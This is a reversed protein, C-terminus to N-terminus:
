FWTWCCSCNPWESGISGLELLLLVLVVYYCHLKKSATGYRHFYYRFTHRACVYVGWKSSLHRFPLSLREGERACVRYTFAFYSTSSLCTVEYLFWLFVVHLRWLRAASSKSVIYTVVSCATSGGGHRSTVSTIRQRSYPSCRMSIHEWQKDRPQM